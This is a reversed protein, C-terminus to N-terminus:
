KQKISKEPMGIVREFAMVNEIMREFEWPFHGLVEAMLEGSLVTLVRADEDTIREHPTLTRGNNQDIYLCSQRLRELEDSEAQHLIKKITSKGLVRDLRANILAGSVVAIFHKRRHSRDVNTAKLDGRPADFSILENSIGSLKGVEEIVLISLFSAFPFNGMQYNQCASAWLREVHIILKKYTTLCEDFTAGTLLPAQKDSSSHKLEVLKSFRRHGDKFLLTKEIADDDPDHDVEALKQRLEALLHQLIRPDSSLVHFLRANQVAAWYDGSPAACLLDFLSIRNSLIGDLINEM